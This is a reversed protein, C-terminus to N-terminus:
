RRRPRLRRRDPARGPGVADTIIAVAYGNVIGMQRTVTHQCGGGKFPGAGFTGLGWAIRRSRGVLVPYPARRRSGVRGSNLAAMFRVQERITWQMGGPRTPPLGHPPRRGVAAGPHDRRRAAPSRTVSRSVANMDSATLAASVWRKQQATAKGPDGDCVTDLFASVVLVKSTSWAKYNPGVGGRDRVRNDLPAFAFADHHRGEPQHPAQCPLAEPRVTASQPPKVTPAKAHDPAPRQHHDRPRRAARRPRPRQRPTTAPGPGHRSRAARRAAVLPQAVLRYAVHDGLSDSAQARPGAVAHQRPGVSRTQLPHLGLRPYEGAEMSTM